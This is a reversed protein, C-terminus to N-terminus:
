GSRAGSHSRNFARRVAYGRAFSVATFILTISFNEALSFHHGHLPYVVLGTVYAMLMGVLTSVIAELASQKRTQTM